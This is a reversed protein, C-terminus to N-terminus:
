PCATVNLALDDIFFNTNSAGDTQSRMTLKVTKGAFTMPSTLTFPVFIATGAAGKDVNSLTTLTLLTVDTQDRVSISFTDIATAATEVSGVLRKGKLEFVTASAPVVIEQSVQDVASLSGGLWAVNPSSPIALGLPPPSISPSTPDALQQVWNVGAPTLDFSPNLLMQKVVPVCAPPADPLPTPMADATGPDDSKGGDPNGGFKRADVSAKDNADAGLKGTACGGLFAAAIAFCVRRSPLTPM